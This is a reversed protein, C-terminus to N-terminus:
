IRPFFWINVLKKFNTEDRTEQESKGKNTISTAM